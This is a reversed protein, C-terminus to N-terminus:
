PSYPVTVRTDHAPNFYVLLWTGRTGHGEELLGETGWAKPVEGGPEEPAEAAGGPGEVDRFPGLSGAAQARNQCVPGHYTLVLAM